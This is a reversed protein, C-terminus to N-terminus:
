ATIWSLMMSASVSILRVASVWERIPRLQRTSPCDFLCSGIASFMPSLLETTAFYAIFVTSHRESEEYASRGSESVHSPTRYSTASITDRQRPGPSIPKRTLVVLPCAKSRM